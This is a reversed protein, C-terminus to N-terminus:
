TYEVPINNHDHRNTGLQSITDFLRSNSTFNLDFQVYFQSRIPRLISISNSTFNLDFQVYFQSRIPRLISTSRSTFVDSSIATRAEVDFVDSSIATRAEVDFAGSSVASCVEVDFVNTRVTGDIVKILIKNFIKVFVRGPSM